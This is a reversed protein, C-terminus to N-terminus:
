LKPFIEKFDEGFDGTDVKSASQSRNSAEQYEKIVHFIEAPTKFQSMPTKANGRKNYFKQCIYLLIDVKERNWFVPVPKFPNNFGYGTMAYACSRMVENSPYICRERALLQILRNFRNAKDEDTLLNFGENLITCHSLAYNRKKHTFYKKGIEFEKIIDRHETTLSDPIVQNYDVPSLQEPQPEQQVSEEIQGTLPQTATPIDLDHLITNIDRPTGSVNLLGSEDIYYNTGYREDREELYTNIVTSDLASCVEKLKLVAEYFSQCNQFSLKKFFYRSDEERGSRLGLILAFILNCVEESPTEIGRWKGWQEFLSSYDGEYRLGTSIINKTIILDDCVIRQNTSFEHKVFSMPFLHGKKNFLFERIAVLPAIILEIRHNFTIPIFSEMAEFVLKAVKKDNQMSYFFVEILNRRLNNEIIDVYSDQVDANEIRNIFEKDIISNGSETPNQLFLGISFLNSEFPICADWYNDFEIVTIGKETHNACKGSPKEVSESNQTTSEKLKKSSENDTAKLEFLISLPASYNAALKRTSKWHYVSEIAQFCELPLDNEICFDHVLNKAAIQYEEWIGAYSYLHYNVFSSYMWIALGIFLNEKHIAYGKKRLEEIIIGELSNNQCRIRFMSIMRVTDLDKEFLLRAINAESNTM